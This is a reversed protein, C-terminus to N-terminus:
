WEVLKWIEPQPQEDRSGIESFLQAARRLYAMSEDDRGASYMLDALNNLIAAERHRDHQRVCLDLAECATAIAVEVDGAAGRALALNNLAAVHATPDDLTRALAVSAAFNDVATDLEGNHRALIGLVNRTQALAQADGVDEALGLARLGLAGALEAEGRHHAYLSWDAFVRAAIRPAGDALATAAERYHAEALEWRGRRDCVNGLQHEIEPLATRPGLAAATEYSAHAGSYDGTLTLVSGLRRHVIWPEPHDLALAARLHTLAENHAFLAAADRGAREHFLAAKRDMGALEYHRAIARLRARDARGCLSLTRLGVTCCGAAPAAPTTM